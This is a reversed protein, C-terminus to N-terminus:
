DGAPADGVEIRIAAVAVEGEAQALWAEPDPFLEDAAIGFDAEFTDPDVEVATGTVEVLDGTAVDPPPTASVVAVPGGVDGTMRFTSAVDSSSLVETVEGRVAIEQGLFSRPDGFFTDDCGPPGPEDVRDGPADDDPPDELAFGTM